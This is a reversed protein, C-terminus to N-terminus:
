TSATLCTWQEHLHQLMEVQESEFFMVTGRGFGLGSHSCHVFGFCVDVTVDVSNTGTRDMLADGWRGGAGEQCPRVFGGMVQRPM